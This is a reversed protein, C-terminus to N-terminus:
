YSHLMETSETRFGHVSILEMYVWFRFQFHFLFLVFGGHSLPRLRFLFSVHWLPFSLCRSLFFIWCFFPCIIYSLCTGCFIIFLHSICLCIFLHAIVTTLFICSSVLYWHKNKLNIIIYFTFMIWIQCNHQQFTFWQLKKPFYNPM